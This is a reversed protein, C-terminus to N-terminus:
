IPSDRSGRGQPSPPVGDRKNAGKHRRSASGSIARRRASGREGCSGSAGVPVGVSSGAAPAEASAVLVLEVAAAEVRPSPPAPEWRDSTAWGGDSEEEDSSSNVPALLPSLGQQERLRYEENYQELHERRWLRKEKARAAREQERRQAARGTARALPTRPDSRAVNV